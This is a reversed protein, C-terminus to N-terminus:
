SIGLLIGSLHSMEISTRGMVVRSSIALCCTLKTGGQISAKILVSDM